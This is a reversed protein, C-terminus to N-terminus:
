PATPPSIHGQFMALSLAALTFSDIIQGAAIEARLESLTVWRVGHVELNDLPTSARTEYLALFLHVKASLLGSNPTTLGLPIVTGPASGLEEMLEVNASVLPDESSAFGRPISWEWEDLPYRFTKVLGIEGQHVPLMAVGPRGDSEVIRLYTGPSGDPMTVLDDFVTIFRNSFAVQERERVIPRPEM